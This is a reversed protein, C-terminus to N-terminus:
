FEVKVAPQSETSARLNPITKWRSTGPEGVEVSYRGAGFVKPRFSCGAIRLAYVIEGDAEDVVRIVPDSMGSVEIPPLHAAAKRGYSDWQSITVPWGAYQKADTRSPDVWRPWCEIVIERRARNFRVIGYGPAVDYLRAPQLGAVIPNAIAYVQVHNGFGDRYQGTYRPLGERHNGGPQAPFWRRPWINVVSPVCFVFGADDWDDVGYHLVCGLHRDGVIHLAFGRRIARLARNRGSQPWGNSDADAVLRDGSPYEGPKAPILPATGREGERQDPQTSVCAAPTQSLVVKMWTGGSFDVAWDRLFGLQREGLLVAGAVDAQTAPDFNPDEFCGNVV